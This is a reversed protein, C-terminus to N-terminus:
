ISYLWIRPLEWWWPTEEETVPPEPPAAPSSTQQPAIEEFKAALVDFDEVLVLNELSRRMSRHVLSGEFSKHRIQFGERKLMTELNRTHNCGALLVVKVPVSRSELALIKEMAEDELWTSGMNSKETILGYLHDSLAKDGECYKRFAEKFVDYLPTEWESRVLLGKDLLSLEIGMDKLSVTGMEDRIISDVDKTDFGMHELLYINSLLAFMKDLWEIRKRRKDVDITQIEGAIKERAISMVSRCKEIIQIFELFLRKIERQVQSGRNPLANYLEKIGELFTQSFQLSGEYMFTFHEGQLRKLLIIRSTLDDAQKEACKELKVAWLHNLDLGPTMVHKSYRIGSKISALRYCFEYHADGFLYVTQEGKTLVTVETLVASMPTQLFLTALLALLKKKM